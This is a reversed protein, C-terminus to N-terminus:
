GCVAGSLAAGFASYSWQWVPQGDANSPKRPTNLHDSHVVYSAGNIVTAIPM